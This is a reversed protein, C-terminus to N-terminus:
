AIPGRMSSGSRRIARWSGDHRRSFSPHRSTITASFATPPALYLAAALGAFSGGVIVVDDM